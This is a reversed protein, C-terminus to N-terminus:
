RWLIDKQADKHKETPIMIRKSQCQAQNHWSHSLALSPPAPWCKLELVMEFHFDDDTDSNARFKRLSWDASKNDRIWITTKTRNVTWAAQRCLSPCRDFLSRGLYMQLSNKRPYGRLVNIHLNASLQVDWALSRPTFADLTRLIFNLKFLSFIVAELHSNTLRLFVWCIESALRGPLPLFRSM